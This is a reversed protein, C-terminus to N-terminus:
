CVKIKASLAEKAEHEKALKKGKVSLDGLLKEKEQLGLM